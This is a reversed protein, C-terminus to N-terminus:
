RRLRQARYLVTQYPRSVTGGLEERVIREAEDLLEARVPEPLAIWAAFTALIRRIEAPRHRGEWRLVERSMPGYAGIGDIQAMRADLDRLYAHPGAEEELLHPAKAQMSPRLMDRLADPRDPDNWITWWMALWGHDRLARACKMLGAVPDIWHFATASVALDFGAEPLEVDEFAAVILKIDRGATREGLRRALAPGPEVATVRAGHDLMPLTAQGTGAGIELIAAGPQLGCREGLLDFVWPPYGPRAEYDSGIRDFARALEPPRDLLDHKPDHERM